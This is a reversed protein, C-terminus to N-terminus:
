YSCGAGGGGAIRAMYCGVPDAPERFDASMEYRHRLGSRHSRSDCTM